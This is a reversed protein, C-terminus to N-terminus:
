ERPLEPIIDPSWCQWPSNWRSFAQQTTSWVKAKSFTSSANRCAWAGPSRPRRLRMPPRFSPALCSDWAGISDRFFGAPPLRSASYPSAWWASRWCRLASSFVLPPIIVLFVLNPNLEVRPAHPVFSLILGGIVLIIPYPTRDRQALAALAAVFLFILLFILEANHIAASQM